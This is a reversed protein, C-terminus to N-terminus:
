LWYKDNIVIYEVKLLDTCQILSLSKESELYSEMWM